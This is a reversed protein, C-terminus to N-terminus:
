EFSLISSEALRNSELVTLIIGIKIGRTECKEGKECSCTFVFIISMPDFIAIQCVNTRLHTKKMMRLILQFNCDKASSEFVDIGLSM